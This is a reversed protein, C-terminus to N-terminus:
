KYVIKRILNNYQDGVYIAGLGDVAIGNPNRFTALAGTGNSNGPAGSGAVKTVVGAPTIKRILHASADTLYLNSNADVAINWPYSFSAATGTGDATGVNGSGALTTVVGTNTIKRVLANVQEAVYVNGSPDVAIGNPQNFTALTGTGNSNGQVGSGALTSVVGASTIKRVLNNDLDAVYINGSSDIAISNPSNFSAAPGVGDSNGFTGTGAFTTVVGFSTIKRILHNGYDAVFVNGSADVAVSRPQNFSAAIGAGDAKGATGSGALTSVLGASSIKRIINSGTDAVYVNGSQDAALGYPYNFSASTGVGNVSGVAGSGALTTVVYSAVAAGSEVGGGCASFLAVTCVVAVFKLKRSM